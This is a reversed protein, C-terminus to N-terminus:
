SEIASLAAEDVEELIVLQWPLGVLDALAESDIAKAAASRVWLAADRGDLSTLLPDVGSLQFTSFTAM